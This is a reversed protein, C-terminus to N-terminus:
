CKIPLSNYSDIEVKGFNYNISKTIGSKKNLLYKIQDFTRGPLGYGFLLLHRIKGDICIMFRDIKEFRIRM